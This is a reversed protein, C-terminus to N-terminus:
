TESWWGLGTTDNHRCQVGNGMGDNISIKRSCTKLNRADLLVREPLQYSFFRGVAPRFIDLVISAIHRVIPHSVTYYSGSICIRKMRVKLWRWWPFGLPWTAEESFCQGGGAAWCCCSSSQLSQEQECQLLRGGGGWRGLPMHLLTPPPPPPMPLLLPVNPHSLSSM